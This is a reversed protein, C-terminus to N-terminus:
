YCGLLRFKRCYTKIEALASRMKDTFYDGEVEIFFRYEGLLNKIPRSEIKTMNLGYRNVVGLLAYLSGPRHLIQAAFYVRSTPACFNEEGKKVLEFHTYNKEEDAICEPFVAYGHGLTETFHRGVICARFPASVAGLGAATSDTPVLRAQPMRESLFVSCQGLAQPHSYVETIESLSAGALTVLRHEIPLIYEKVAVLDEADALLDMNQLVGGQISNEIPLAIEDVEGKELAAVVSPFNKFLTIEAGPSLEKAALCSYSGEPGLCGIKKM